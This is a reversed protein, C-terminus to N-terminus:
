SGRVDPPLIRGGLPATTPRHGFAAREDKQCLPCQLDYPTGHYCMGQSVPIPKEERLTMPPPLAHINPEIVPREGIAKWAADYDDGIPLEVFHECSVCVLRRRPGNCQLKMMPGECLLGHDLQESAGSLIVVAIGPESEPSPLPTEQM